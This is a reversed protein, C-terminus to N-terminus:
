EEFARPKKDMNTATDQASRDNAFARTPNQLPIDDRPEPGSEAREAEFQKSAVIAGLKDRLEECEVREFSCYVLEARSAQRLFRDLKSLRFVPQRNSIGSKDPVVRAQSSHALRHSDNCSTQKRRRKRDSSSALLHEVAKEENQATQM